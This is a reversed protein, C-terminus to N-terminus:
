FTSGHFKVASLAQASLLRSRRSAETALACSIEIRKEQEQRQQETDAQGDAPGDLLPVINQLNSKAILTKIRQVKKKKERIEDPSLPLDPDSDLYREPIPVKDPTSLERSIDVNYHEPEIEVRRLRAIEERPSEMGQGRVAVELDKIDVEHSTLRRRVVRYNVAPKIGDIQQNNSLQLSNRKERMSSSQHRKIRENQEKVSMKMKVEAPFVASKPREQSIHGNPLKINDRRRNTLSPSSTEEKFPSKTRPPIVGVKNQNNLESEGPSPKEAPPTDSRFSFKSEGLRREDEDESDPRLRARSSLWLTNELPLPPVSPPTTLLSELPLYSKPLPPRPPGMDEIVVQKIPSGQSGSVPSFPSLPSTLSVSSLPSAPSNTSFSGSARSTARYKATDTGWSPNNKHLGELVDQIRWFEKQTHRHLLENQGGAHLQEWLDSHVAGVEDELVEFEMQATALVSSAQSLEGRINILQNQLAEKKLQLKDVISPQNRYLDLEQHTAILAGELGDKDVRLSQVTAEKDKLIRNQECLQGLLKDIDIENTKYAPLMDRYVEHYPSVQQDLYELNRQLQLDLIDEMKDQFSPSAPYNYRYMEQTISRRDRPYEYKPSSISRRMTHAAPDAYIHGDRHHGREFRASPSRVPSFARSGPPYPGQSSSPSRPVSRSRPHLSLHHLSSQASQLQAYYAPHQAPSVAALNPATWVYGGRVGVERTREQPYVAGDRLSRRRDEIAWHPPVGEFGSESCISDPRVGPPYMGFENVFQPGYVGYYETPTGPSMSYYRTPSRLDGPPPVIRRQNVWQQLKTMSSKRQALREPQTRPVFGRRLVAAERSDRPDRPAQPRFASTHPVHEGWGNPQRQRREGREKGRGDLEATMPSRPTPPTMAEAPIAGNLERKSSERIEAGRGDGEGRQRPEAGKAVIVMNDVAPPINESDNSQTLQIHVQAAESMVRVWTEQDEQSEASFFYTRVGAHEAQPCLSSSGNSHGYGEEERCWSAKFAHKRNINDSPQLLSIWFSLLPISGLVAEEKEDKYYFLCRDTLVFWRKNWQKVGNSAQKYLWGQKMVEAKPNRRMSNSRKGFTVAKKSSRSARGNPELDSVMGHSSASESTISVPRKGSMDPNSLLQQQLKHTEEANLHNVPHRFTSSRDNHGAVQQERRKSRLTCYKLILIEKGPCRQDSGVYVPVSLGERSHVAAAALSVAPSSCSDLSLDSQLPISCVFLCGKSSLSLPSPPCAASSLM